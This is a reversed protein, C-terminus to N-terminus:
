KSVVLFLNYILYIVHISKANKKERMQLVSVRLGEGLSIGTTSGIIIISGHSCPNV